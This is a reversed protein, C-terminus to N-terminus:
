VLESEVVNHRLFLSESLAINFLGDNCDTSYKDEKRKTM